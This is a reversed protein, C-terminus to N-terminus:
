GKRLAEKNAGARVPYVRGYDSDMCENAATWWDNDRIAQIMKVFGRFRSPGMQFRMDVLADRRAESLGPTRAPPFLAWIDNEADASDNDFLFEAEDESIGNKSLERGYGITPNGKLTYGKVIPQGTADDYVFRRFGEYQKITEKSM